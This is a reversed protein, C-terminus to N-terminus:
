KAYNYQYKKLLKGDDNKVEFLRGFSDYNYYTTVGRPDTEALIGILPKYTYSTILSTPLKSRLGNIKTMDPTTNAAITEPDTGLMSLATTVQIYTANKIEAIPYQYKYSWLYSTYTGDRNLIEKILGKSYYNLTKVQEYFNSYSNIDKPETSNFSYLASPLYHGQSYTYETKNASIVANNKLTISEIPLNVMNNNVMGTYILSNYDDPYMLRKEILNNNSGTTKESAKCLNTKNYQYDTQKVIPNNIGNNYVSNSISSLHWRESYIDYFKYSRFNQYPVTPVYIKLGKVSTSCNKIYSFEKMEKLNNNADYYCIEKTNGNDLHPTTPYDRILLNQNNEEDKANQFLYTTKGNNTQVGDKQSVSKEEVYTYGVPNGMASNEFATYPYSSGNIYNAYGQYLDRNYIDCSFTTHYTTGSMLIGSSQGFQVYNFERQTAINQGDSDTITKIRLGGGSKIDVFSTGSLNISFCGYNPYKINDLRMRYTGPQLTLDHKVILDAYRWFSLAESYVLNYTNNTLNKNEIYFYATQSYENAPDHTNSADNNNSMYPSFSISLQVGNNINGDIIFDSSTLNKNYHLNLSLSGYNEEKIEKIASNSNQFTNMEYDFNTSGGTPYKINTLIGCKVYDQFSAKNLGPIFRNFETSYYSPSLKFYFGTNYPLSAGNYYGWYDCSISQKNPLPNRNYSFVHSYTQTNNDTSQLTDLILRCELPSSTTGLYSNKFKYNKILTTNNNITNNNFIVISELKQAKKDSAASEIDLRDSYNFLVKGGDFSIQTLIAQQNKSYSYNYRKTSADLPMYFNGGVLLYADESVQIPSYITEMNYSFHVVKKRPSVISDLYWATPTEWEVPRYVFFSRNVNTQYDSTNYTFMTTKEYSNFYYKYGDGDSIVWAGNGNNPAVLYKADFYEKENRVIAKAETPSNGSANSKGFFMTGSFATFNFHFFDPEIDRADAILNSIPISEVNIDPYFYYGRNGNFDNYGRTERSICGGANLTWGLGVISAEQAVKNGLAHYSIRIPIKKGDLDIEYLPVSIDPIGTYQSVSVSGFKGLSAANPSVPVVTYPSQAEYNFAQVHLSVICLTITLQIAFRKM